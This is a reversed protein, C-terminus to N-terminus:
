AASREPMLDRFRVAGRTADEIALVTDTDPKQLGNAIRSVTAISRGIKKAFAAQTLDERSLYQALRM